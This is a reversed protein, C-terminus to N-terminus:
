DKHSSLIKEIDEEEDLLELLPNIEKDILIYCLAQLVTSCEDAEIGNDHLCILANKIKEKDLYFSEVCNTEPLSIVKWFCYASRDNLEGCFDAENCFALLESLNKNRYEEPKLTRILKLKKTPQGTQAVFYEGYDEAIFWNGYECITKM